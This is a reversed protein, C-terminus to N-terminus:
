THPQTGVQRVEENLDDVILSSFNGAATSASAELQDPVLLLVLVLLM